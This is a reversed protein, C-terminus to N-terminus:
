VDHRRAAERARRAREGHDARSVAAVRHRPSTRWYVVAIGVAVALVVVAVYHM